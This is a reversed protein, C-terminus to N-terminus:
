RSSVEEQQVANQLAIQSANELAEVVTHLQPVHQSTWDSVFRERDPGTWQANQIQSTLTNVLQRIESAHNSMQTALQKVEEPVMGLFATV